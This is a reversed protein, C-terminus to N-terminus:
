YVFIYTAKNTAPDYEVDVETAPALSALDRDKEGDTIDTEADVTVTLIKESSADETEGYLKVTVSQAAPDTSTVEGSVFELNEGLTPDGSLIEAAVSAPAAGPAPAAAPATQTEEALVPSAFLSVSLFTMLIRSKPHM